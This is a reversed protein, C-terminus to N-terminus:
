GESRLTKKLSKAQAVLSDIANLIKIAKTEVTDSEFHKILKYTVKKECQKKWGAAGNSFHWLQQIAFDDDFRDSNQAFIITSITASTHCDDNLPEFVYVATKDYFIRFYYIPRYCSLKENDSAIFEKFKETSSFFLRRSKLGEKYPIFTVYDSSPHDHDNLSELEVTNTPCKEGATEAVLEMVRWMDVVTNQENQAEERSIPRGEIIRLGAISSNDQSQEAAATSLQEIIQEGEYVVVTKTKPNRMKLKIAKKVKIGQPEDDADEEETVFTLPSVFLNPKDNDGLEPPSNKSDNNEGEDEQNTPKPIGKKKKVYRIKTPLQSGVSTGDNDRTFTLDSFPYAANCGSLRSAFFTDGNIRGCVKWRVRGRVPPRCLPIGDLGPRGLPFTEAHVDSFLKRAYIDFAARGVAAADIDYVFKRLRLYHQGGIIKTHKPNFLVKDVSSGSFLAKVLGSSSGYYFRALETCPIVLQKVSLDDLVKFAFYKSKLLSLIADNETHKLLDNTPDFRQFVEQLSYLEGSQAYLRYDRPKAIEPQYDIGRPKGGKKWTMNRRYLSLGGILNRTLKAQSLEVKNIGEQIPVWIIELVQETNQKTSGSIAGHGLVTWVNSFDSEPLSLSIKKIYDKYKNAM